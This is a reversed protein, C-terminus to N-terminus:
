NELELQLSAAQKELLAAMHHMRFTRMSKADNLLREVQEKLREKCTTVEAKPQIRVWKLYGNRM